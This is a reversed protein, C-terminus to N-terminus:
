EGTEEIWGVDSDGGEIDPAAGIGRDARGSFVGGVVDGARIPEDLRVVDEM